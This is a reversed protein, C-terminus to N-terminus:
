SSKDFSMKFSFVFHVRLCGHDHVRLCGHDHNSQVIRIHKQKQKQRRRPTHAALPWEQKQKWLFTSNNNRTTKGYFVRIKRLMFVFSM